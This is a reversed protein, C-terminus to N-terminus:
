FTASLSLCAYGNLFFSRADYQRNSNKLHWSSLPCSASHHPVLTLYLFLWCGHGSGIADLLIHPFEAHNAGNPQRCSYHCHRIGTFKHVAKLIRNQFTKIPWPVGSVKLLLRRLLTESWVLSIKVSCVQREIHGKATAARESTYIERFPPDFVCLCM